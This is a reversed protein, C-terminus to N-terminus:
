AVESEGRRDLVKALASWTALVEGVVFLSGTAVVVGGPPCEALATELAEAVPVSAEMPVRTEPIRARLEEPSAARPHVAQTLYVRDAAPLLEAMMGEVDKDASAGFIVLRPRRPFHEELTRCLWAASERNHAADVVLAPSESLVQFRGPWRVSRFGQEIAGEDVELGRGRAVQLTVYAVAANVRQHGGLLPIELEAESGDDLSWLRIRQGRLDGATQEWRWREGVAVLPSRRAEAVERIAEMAEPPQPAVVVPVGPKIIGAKERAIQGLTDGLLHTHDLSISTIVSVLPTLVNTADLRGGLGVEVVAVDVRREAFYLFGLATTLEYTTIGPVQDVVGKLRDVLRVVEWEPIEEGDVQIRETFRLLHPSTYLGTRHGQARLASALLASVSGKGKTGAIHLSPYRRHPGGLSALLRRERGLDFAEPSYRHSREVSHDIFSYLFDLADQYRPDTMLIQGATFELEAGRGPCAKDKGAALIRAIMVETVIVGSLLHDGEM